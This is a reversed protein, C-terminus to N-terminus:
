RARTRPFYTTTRITTTTPDPVDVPSRADDLLDRVRRLLQSASTPKQLFSMGAAEVSRVDVVEGSYASTMLICIEPKAQRLRQAVERGGMKPMVMDILALSIREAHQEFLALAEPGNEAALVSYGAQELVRCNLKRVVDDDEVVLLTETGRAPPKEEQDPVAAAGREVAPLYISVITGEGMASEVDILGGHQQVIGYVTALGLGTGRGVEKTTFFPEFIQGLTAESMGVGPDAVTLRVFDGPRAWPHDATFSEDLHVRVTTIRIRGGEPMADRANLCLNMLVQELQRQDAHVTAPGPEAVFEVTAQGGLVGALMDLGDGIVRKLDLDATELVQRRGFALLERTLGAASEAARRVQDLDQFRKDDPLLGAQAFQAYGLIAQLQNNFDHAVGGALQGLASLKEARLIQRQAVEIQAEQHQVKRKLNQAAVRAHQLLRANEVAYGIQGLMVTLFEQDRAQFGAGCSKRALCVAGVTGAKTMLPLILLSGDISDPARAPTGDAEGPVRGEELIPRASEVVRRALTLLASAPQEGTPEQGESAVVELGDEDERRLLVWGNGAQTASMAKRLVLSLLDSIDPVKATIETLETLVAFQQIFRELQAANERFEVTLKNLSNIIEAMEQLQNPGEALRVSQSEGRSVSELSKQLVIVSRIITWVLYLGLMSLAFLLVLPIEKGPLDERFLYLVMM